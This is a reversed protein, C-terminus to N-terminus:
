MYQAVGGPGIMPVKRLLSTFQGSIATNFSASYPSFAGGVVSDLQKDSIEREGMVATNQLLATITNVQPGTFRFGAEGAIRAIESAARDAADISQAPKLKEQLKLDKTVESWFRIVAETAALEEPSADFGAAKAIKSLETLENPKNSGDLFPVKGAKPAIQDQLTKDQSVKQWFGIVSEYSM